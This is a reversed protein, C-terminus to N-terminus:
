LRLFWLNVSAFLIVPVKLSSAHTIVRPVLTLFTVSDVITLKIRQYSNFMYKRM